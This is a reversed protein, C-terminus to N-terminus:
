RPHLVQLHPQEPHSPQLLLRRICVKLGRCCTRGLEKRPGGGSRPWSSPKFSRSKQKVTALKHEAWPAAHAEVGAGDREQVALDREQCVKRYVSIPITGPSERSPSGVPVVETAVQAAM